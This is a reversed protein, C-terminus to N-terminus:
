PDSNMRTASMCCECLETEIWRDQSWFQQLCGRLPRFRRRIRFPIDSKEELKSAGFICVTSDAGGSELSVGDISWALGCVPGSHASIQAVLNGTRDYTFIMGDNGGTAFKGEFSDMAGTRGAHDRFIQICCKRVVDWLETHGAGSLALHEGVWCVSDITTGAEMLKVADGAAWVYVAQGLAVALSGDAGIDLIKSPFEDVIDPADLV